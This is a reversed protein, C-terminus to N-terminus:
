AAKLHLTISARMCDNTYFFFGDNIVNTTFPSL